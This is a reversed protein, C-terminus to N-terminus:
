SPSILSGAADADRLKITARLADGLPYLTLAIFILLPMNLMGSGLSTFIATTAFAATIGFVTAAARVSQRKRMRVAAVVFTIAIAFLAITSRLPARDIAFYLGLIAFIAAMVYVRRAGQNVRQHSTLPLAPASANANRVARAEAVPREGIGRSAFQEEIVRWSEPTYEEFGTAYCDVLEEDSM